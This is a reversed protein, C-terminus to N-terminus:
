ARSVVVRGSNSLAGSSSVSAWSSAWWHTPSSTVRARHCSMQILSPKASHDDHYQLSCVPCVVACCNKWRRVGRAGLVGVEPVRRGAVGATRRVEEGPRDVVAPGHRQLREAHPDPVVRREEVQQVVPHAACRYPLAVTSSKTAKVSCRNGRSAGPASRGRRATGARCAWRNTLALRRIEDDEGLCSHLADKQLVGALPRHRRADLVPRGVSPQLRHGGGLLHHEAPATPDGCIRSSDPSPGFSSSSDTPTSTGARRQGVDALM